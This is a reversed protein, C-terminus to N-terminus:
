IVTHLNKSPHCDIQSHQRQRQKLYILQVTFHVKKQNAKIYSSTYILFRWARPWPYQQTLLIQQQWTWTGHQWIGYLSYLSFICSAELQTNSVLTSEHVLSHVLSLITWCDLMHHESYLAKQDLAQSKWKSTTYGQVFNKLSGINGNRRQYFLSSLLIQTM